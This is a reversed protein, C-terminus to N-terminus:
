CTSTIPLAGVVTVVVTNCSINLHNLVDKVNAVNIDINSLNGNLADIDVNGINVVDKVVVTNGNVANCVINGVVAVCSVPSPNAAATGGGALGVALLGSTMATAVLTRTSRRKMTTAPSFKSM